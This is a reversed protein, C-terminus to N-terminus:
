KVFMFIGFASMLILVLMLLIMGVLSVVKKRHLGKRIGSFVVRLDEKNIGQGSYKQLLRDESGAGEKVYEVIAESLMLSNSKKGGALLKLLALCEEAQAERGRLVLSCIDSSYIGELMKQFEQFNDKKDFTYLRGDAGCFWDEDSLFNREMLDAALAPSFVWLSDGEKYTKAFGKPFKMLAGSSLKADKTMDYTVMGKTAGQMGGEDAGGEDAGERAKGQVVGCFGPRLMEDTTIFMVDEKAM